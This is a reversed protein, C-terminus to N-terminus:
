RRALYRADDFTSVTGPLYIVLATMAAGTLWAESFALLIFFPAFEHLVFDASFSGSLVLLISAEAGSALMSLAGGVFAAVFIYSFFNAPLFRETIHLMASSVLVPVLVTALANMGVQSWAADGNLTTALLVTTMAVLAFRAGAILTMLTAGILHMELGPQASARMHWALVLVVTGGCLAHLVRTDTVRKWPARHLAWLLACALLVLAFSASLDSFAAAPLNM